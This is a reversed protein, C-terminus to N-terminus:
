LFLSEYILWTLQQIHSQEERWASPIKKKEAHKKKWTDYKKIKAM